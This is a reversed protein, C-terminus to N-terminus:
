GKKRRRLLPIVPEFEVTSGEVEALEVTTEPQSGPRPQARRLLRRPGGGQMTDRVAQKVKDGLEGTAKDLQRYFQRARVAALRNHLTLHVARVCAWLWILVALLVYPLLPPYWRVSLVIVPWLVLGWLSLAFWRRLEEGLLAMITKLTKWLTRFPLLVVWVAIRPPYAALKEIGSV